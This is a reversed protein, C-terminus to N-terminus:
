PGPIARDAAVEFSREPLPVGRQSVTELHLRAQVRLRQRLGGRVDELRTTLRAVAQLRGRVLEVVIEGFAPRERERVAVRGLRALAGALVETRV